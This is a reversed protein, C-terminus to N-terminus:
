STQEGRSKVDIRHVRWQNRSVAPNVPLTSANIVTVVVAEGDGVVIDTPLSGNSVSISSSYDPNPTEIISYGSGPTVPDYVQSGGGALQFSAPSLGGGAAFDFDTLDGAPVTTKNITISGPNLPVAIYLVEVIHQTVRTPTPVYVLAEVGVQSVRAPSEVHILAEVGVQTVVSTSPM